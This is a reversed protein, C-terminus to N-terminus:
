CIRFPLFTITVSFLFHLRFFLKLFILATVANVYGHFEQVKLDSVHFWANCVDCCIVRENVRVCAKCLRCTHRHSMNPGPNPHIDGSILLLSMIIQKHTRAASVISLQFHTTLCFYCYVRYTENYYDGTSTTFFSQFSHHRDISAHSFQILLAKFLTILLLKLQYVHKLNFTPGIKIKFKKNQPFKSIKIRSFRSFIVFYLVLYM